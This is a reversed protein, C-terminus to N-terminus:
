CLQLFPPHLLVIIVWGTARSVEPVITPMAGGGGGVPTDVGVKDFCGCTRRMATVIEAAIVAMVDSNVVRVTVYLILVGQIAVVYVDGGDVVDAMYFDSECVNFVM